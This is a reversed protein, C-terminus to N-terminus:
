STYTFYILILRNEFTLMQLVIKNFLGEGIGVRWNFALKSAHGHCIIAQLSVNKQLIAFQIFKLLKHEYPSFRGSHQESETKQNGKSESLTAYRAYQGQMSYGREIPFMYNRHMVKKPFSNIKFSFSIKQVYKLCLRRIYYLRGKKEYILRGTKAFAQFLTFYKDSTM